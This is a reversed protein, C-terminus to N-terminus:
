AKPLTEDDPLIDFRHYDKHVEETVKEYGIANSIINKTVIM